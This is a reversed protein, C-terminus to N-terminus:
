QSERIPHGRFRADGPSDDRTAALSLVRILPAGREVGDCEPVYMYEWDLAPSPMRYVFCRERLKPHQGLLVRDILEEIDGM